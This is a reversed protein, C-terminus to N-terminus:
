LLALRNLPQTIVMHMDEEVIMASQLKMCIDETEFWRLSTIPSSWFTQVCQRRERICVVGNPGKPGPILFLINQPMKFPRNTLNDCIATVKCLLCAGSFSLEDCCFLFTHQNHKEECRSAPHTESIAGMGPLPTLTQVIDFLSLHGCTTAWKYCVEWSLLGAREGRFHNWENAVALLLDNDRLPCELSTDVQLASTRVCFCM